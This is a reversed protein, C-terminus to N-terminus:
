KDKNTLIIYELNEKYIENIQETVPKLYKQIVKDRNKVDQIHPELDRDLSAYLNMKLEQM